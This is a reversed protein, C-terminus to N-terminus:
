IINRIWLGDEVIVRKGSGLNIKELNLENFWQHEHKEAMFLFLRKVKVSNCEELLNQVLQSRLTTLGETIRLAEDFSQGKPILSLMEM